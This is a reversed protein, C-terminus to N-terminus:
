GCQKASSVGASTSCVCSRGRSWHNFFHRSRDLVQDLRPPHHLEAHGLRGGPGNPKLARCCVCSFTPSWKCDFSRWPGDSWCASPSTSVAAGSAPLLKAGAWRRVQLVASLSSPDSPRHRRSSGLPHVPPSRNASTAPKQHMPSLATVANSSQGIGARVVASLTAMITVTPRRTYQTLSWRWFCHAAGPESRAHASRPTDPPRSKPCWRGRHEAQGRTTRVKV